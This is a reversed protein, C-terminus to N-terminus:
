DYSVGNIARSLRPSNVVTYAFAGYANASLETSRWDWIIDRSRDLSSPLGGLDSLDLDYTAQLIFYLADLVPKKEEPDLDVKTIDADKLEMLGPGTRVYYPSLFLPFPIPHDPKTEPVEQEPDVPISSREKDAKVEGDVVLDSTNAAAALRASKRTTTAAQYGNTDRRAGGKTKRRAPPM